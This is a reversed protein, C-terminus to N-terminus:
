FNKQIMIDLAEKIHGYINKFFLNEDEAYIEM